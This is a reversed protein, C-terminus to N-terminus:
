AHREHHPALKSDPLARRLRLQRAMAFVAAAALLHKITHGSLAGGLARYTALDFTEFLKALGYWGAAWALLSGHSYRRAPFFAILIVIALVSWGQYLGYPIVNGRGLREGAYWYAVSLAGLALLPWLMRLGWTLDVREAMAASVLGAFGLTMPLRDWVLRANEPALHYYSSGVSTLLAGVFFVLYPLAEHPDVFAGRGRLILGLGFTGGVLFPVNSLVNLFNPVSWYSRCDAFAHYSLPQAMSPVLLAAVVCAILSGALLGIRWDYRLRIARDTM